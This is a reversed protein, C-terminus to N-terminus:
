RRRRSRRPAVARHAPGVLTIASAWARPSSTWVQVKRLSCRRSADVKAAIGLRRTGPRSDGGADIAHEGVEGVVGVRRAHLEQEAAVRAQHATERVRIRAARMAAAGVDSRLSRCSPAALTGVSHILVKGTTQRAELARHAHGRDALPVRARHPGEHPRRRALQLRRRHAGAAGRAYRHVPEPGAADPVALGQRRPDRSRVAGGLRELVRVAGAPRAAAPLQPEQRLHGEGGLRLGRGRRPGGTLKKVEAEFDQETYLIVDDAGAERALAAKAATGATGIVRAGRIRAAQVILQGVGGAAAHVLATDGPKLPFTSSTLYHATTGQLMVAAATKVDIHAPLPVLRAAPVVAYDAYTGIVMTYAVRDGAAVGTVGPGVASVTGAGEMGLTFPTAPPPYKGARFQVDIFNLGSAAIKVVAQGEGATPVEVDEYRLAEPGGPAHM